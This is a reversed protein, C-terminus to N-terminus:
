RCVRVTRKTEAERGRTDSVRATLVHKGRKKGKTGWTFTYVGAVNKRVRKIQRNGDFFGVSSISATSGAVVQLQTRAPLCKSSKEPLVWTVTPRAVVSLRLGQFFSNPMPNVGETHINKTEQFDSAFLRVFQSGTVFKPSDRPISFVVIGTVPDFSLPSLQTRDRGFILLLSLPDVGSAADTV